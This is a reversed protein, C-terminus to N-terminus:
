VGKIWARELRADEPSHVWAPSALRERAISASRTDWEEIICYFSGLNVHPEACDEKLCSQRFSAELGLVGRKYLLVTAEFVHEIVTFQGFGLSAVDRVLEDAVHEGGISKVQAKAKQDVRSPGIWNLVPIPDHSTYTGGGETSSAPNV